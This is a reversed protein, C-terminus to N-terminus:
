HQMRTAHTDRIGYRSPHKISESTFCDELQTGLCAPVKDRITDNPRVVGTVAAYLTSYGIGTTVSVQKLTMGRARLLARVPQEGYRTM